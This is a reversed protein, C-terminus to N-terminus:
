SWGSLNGSLPPLLLVKQNRPIGHLAWSFLFSLCCSLFIPRVGRGNPLFRRVGSVRLEALVEAVLPLAYGTDITSPEEEDLAKANFAELIHSTFAKLSLLGSLVFKVPLRGVQLPAKPVDMAVDGFM